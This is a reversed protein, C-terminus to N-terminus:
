KDQNSKNNFTIFSVYFCTMMKLIWLCVVERFVHAWLKGFASIHFRGIEYQHLVHTIGPRNLVPVIIGPRFISQTSNPSKPNSGRKKTIPHNKSTFM